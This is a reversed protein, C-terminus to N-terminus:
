QLGGAEQDTNVDVIGPLRRLQDAVRPALSRLQALDASWLTLQYDSRGQRAGIRVDQTTVLFTSLGSISQLKGRLRAIVRQASMQREEIPKLAGLLRGNNMSAIWGSSGIFSG